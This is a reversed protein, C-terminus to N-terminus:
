GVVLLVVVSEIEVNVVMDLEGEVKVEKIASHPGDKEDENKM